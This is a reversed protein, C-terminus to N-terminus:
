RYKIFGGNITDIRRQLAIVGFGEASHFSNTNGEITQIFSSRIGTVIGTHGKGKGRNIIFVTGPVILLPNQIADPYLVKFGKTMSWHQLCSATKILPNVRNLQASAKEFCWYVFAACWPYGPGMRVSNLYEEVRPGRNSGPPDESVGIEQRAIKVVAELLPSSAKARENVGEFLGAWTKPGVNGDMEIPDSFRYFVRNQYAKIACKTTRGFIGDEIIPGFGQHNLQSQIAIVIAIDQEGITIIRSPYNM